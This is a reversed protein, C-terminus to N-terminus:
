SMLQMKCCHKVYIGIIARSIIQINSPFIFCIFRPGNVWLIVSKCWQIAFIPLWHLVFKRVLNSLSYCKFFFLFNWGISTSTLHWIISIFILGLAHKPNTLCGTNDVPYCLLVSCQVTYSLM